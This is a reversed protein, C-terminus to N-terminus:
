EVVEFTIGAACGDFQQTREIHLPLHVSINSELCYTGPDSPSNIFPWIAYKDEGKASYSRQTNQSSYRIFGKTDPDQQFLIDNFSLSSVRYVDLHSIFQLKEGIKIETCRPVVEYYKFWYTIPMLSFFAIAGHYLLLMIAIFWLIYLRVKDVMAM